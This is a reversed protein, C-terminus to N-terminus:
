HVPIGGRRGLCQADRHRTKPVPRVPAKTRHRYGMKAIDVVLRLAYSRGMLVTDDPNSVSVTRSVTRMMVMSMARVAAKAKLSSASALPSSPSRVLVRVSTTSVVVPATVSMTDVTIGAAAGTVSATSVVTPAVVVPTFWVTPFRVLGEVTGDTTSAVTLVTSPVVCATPSMTSAATVDSWCDGSVSTGFRRWCVVVLTSCVACDADPRTLATVSGTAGSTSMVPVMTSVVTGSTSSVNVM